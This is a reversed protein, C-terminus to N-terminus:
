ELDVWRVATYCGLKMRVVDEGPCLSIAQYMQDYQCLANQGSCIYCHMRTAKGNCLAGKCIDCNKQDQECDRQISNTPNIFYCGRVVTGREKNVHTFCQGGKDTCLHTRNPTAANMTMCNGYSSDCYYCSYVSASIAVQNCPQDVSFSKDCYFCEDQHSCDIRTECHRDEHVKNSEDVWRMIMCRAWNMACKGNPYGVGAFSKACFNFSGSYYPFM